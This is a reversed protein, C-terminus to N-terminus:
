GNLMPGYVKWGLLALLVWVLISHGWVGWAWGNAYWGFMFILWIIMLGWFLLGFPM